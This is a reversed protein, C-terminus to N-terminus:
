GPQAHQQVELIRLFFDQVTVSDIDGTISLAARSGNPWGGFSILPAELHEVQHLLARRRQLQEGRSAGFGEPMDLFLAYQSAERQLNRITPYGQERLFNAVTHHTDPSLAICPCCRAEVVASRSLLRADPGFWPTAPQDVVRAHRVLVTAQPSCTAELLWCDSSQATVNLTFQTREQWWSAVDQLRALWVPLPRTHAYALLADLASRCQVAREPHLNLTYIGGREYVRQMVECWIRGIAETDTLRLRDFLMEDDPLCTPIRILTGEYHPRLTYADCPLAQFLTLSKEYSAQLAAPFRRLDLVDHVIAENSDYRFGLAAFVRVSDHTWGLYPNRFGQQPIAAHSFVSIAQQTQEHQERASLTRYDNHVYGHIGIEAGASVVGAILSSHRRLVIAPIFFTPAAHYRQLSQLVTYLARRTRAESVGFRAFVTWLRRMFTRTGKSKISFSVLNM